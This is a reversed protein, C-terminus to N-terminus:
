VGQGHILDDAAVAFHIAGYARFGETFPNGRAARIVAGWRRIEAALLAQLEAPSGPALRIGSQGLQAQLDARALAERLARNLLALVDPPTGAPAALANWSAVEFGAVGAQAATPVASEFEELAEGRLQQLVWDAPDMRGPPRGVGLRVRLYADTGLKEHLSRLGNHGGHGGGKKCTVRGPALDIDDHVVILDSFEVGYEEALKKVPGGSVNMFSQPKALRDVAMGAGDDVVSLRLQSAAGSALRIRVSRARAHKAVNTLAEQTVRYLCAALPATLRAEDAPQLAAADVSCAVGTHQTFRTALTQLAAVLGLEELVLPRLDQIIRRTSTIANIALREIRALAKEAAPEALKGGARAATAEMLVAALSQQMDDHLERAIRLREQEQVQDQAAIMRQLEAHSAELESRVRKLETIDRGTVVSGVIHGGADRIPAFSHSGAWREGGDKRRLDFQVNSASQGDLARQIPWLPPPVATGDVTSLEFMDVYGEPTPVCAQRSSCRHFAVFASNVEVFRGHADTILWQRAVLQATM